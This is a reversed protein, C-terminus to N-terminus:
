RVIKQLQGTISINNNEIFELKSMLLNLRKKENSDNLKAICSKMNDIIQKKAIKKYREIILGKRQILSLLFLSSDRDESLRKGENDSGSFGTKVDAILSNITILSQKLLTPNQDMIAKKDLHHNKFIIEFAKTLDAESIREHAQLNHQMADM